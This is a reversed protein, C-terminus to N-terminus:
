KKVQTKPPQKKLREEFQRAEESSILGDGDTDLKRFDEESGLFERPSIDGDGNRDMKSFWLPSPKQVAPKPKRGSVLAPRFRRQAQGVSVQLRRPIDGRALGLSSKALPQMRSWGTRLERISLRGDSNEDLLDFLSRGEDTINLQVKSNAGEVQMDLYANLEKETLKGDNDRDALPFIDRLFDVAMAKKKDIVGKKDTDAQKFQQTYFQKLNGFQQFTQDAVQLDIHSDGFNFALADADHRQVKGAQSMDRKSPNFVDARIPKTANIGMKRLLGVVAGEKEQLTGIRTMLELDPDRRLFGAFEKVDLKGDHNADLRDFLAKDLGIEKPTLKSDKDKDYHTLVQQAVRDVSAAEVQVFGLSINPAGMGGGAVSFAYYGNNNGGGPMLEDSTLVENEDLDLRQLATPAKTMEEASLKKDKNTDLYKFITNTVADTTGQSSNNSFQLPGIGGRRYYNKFEPLQITGDKNEDVDQMRVTQGQIPFGLSGQLHFNLFQANPAREVEAKTLKGDGNTDFHDFFKKMYAEWATSYPRGNNQIHLRLYIPRDNAVFVFDLYDIAPATLPKAEAKVSGQAAPKAEALKADVADQIAQTQASARLPATLMVSLALSGILLTRM